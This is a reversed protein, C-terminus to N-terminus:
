RKFKENTAADEIDAKFLNMLDITEVITNLAAPMDVGTREGHAVKNRTGVLSEDIFAKKTSYRSSSLGLFEVIEMFLDFNLNGIKELRPWLDICVNRKEMDMIQYTLNSSTSIKREIGHLQQVLGLTEVGIFCTKLDGYTLNRSTVYLGYHSAARKIFGEWHAYALPITARVLVAQRPEVAAVVANKIIGLEVIRWGIEADLASQLHAATRIRAM